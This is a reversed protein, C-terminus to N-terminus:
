LAARIVRVRVDVHEGVEPLGVHSYPLNLVSSHDSNRALTRSDNQIVSCVSKERVTKILVSLGEIKGLAADV